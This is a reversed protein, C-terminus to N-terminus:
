EGSPPPIHAHFVAMTEAKQRAYEAHRRARADAHNLGFRKWWTDIEEPTRAENKLQEDETSM